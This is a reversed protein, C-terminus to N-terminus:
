RVFQLLKATGVYIIGKDKVVFSRKIPGYESFADELEKDTTTYPLNRVFLTKRQPEMDKKGSDNTVSDDAMKGKFTLDRKSPSALACGYKSVSIPYNSYALM